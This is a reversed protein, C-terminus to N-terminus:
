GPRTICRLTPQLVPDWNTSGNGAANNNVASYFTPVTTNCNINANCVIMKIQMQNSKCDDHGKRRHLSVRCSVLVVLLLLSTQLSTQLAWCVGTIPYSTITALYSMYSCDQVSSFSIYGRGGRLDIILEREFLANKGDNIHPPRARLRKM